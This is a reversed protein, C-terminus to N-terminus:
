RAVNAQQIQQAKLLSLAALDPEGLKVLAQALAEHHAATAPDISV